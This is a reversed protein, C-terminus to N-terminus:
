KTCVYLREEPLLAYRRVAESGFFAVPDYAAVQYGAKRLRKEYDKGYIRCHDNQGFIATRDDESVVSSSM